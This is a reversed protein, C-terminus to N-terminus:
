GERGDHLFDKLEPGGRMEPDVLSDDLNSGPVWASKFGPQSDRDQVSCSGALEGCSM